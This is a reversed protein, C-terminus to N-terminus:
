LLDAVAEVGSFESGSRPPRGSDPRTITVLKEIGYNRASQLVTESDDVFMTTEVGFAIDEQLAQWFDQSEKAHGYTHSSHLGDFYDGLGTVADKLALTEPHANTVLLVRVNRAHMERLFDRAGPLFGIRHSMDHHMQVVDIGLRDCWHDLCYWELSGQVSRYRTILDELADDFSLENVIAYQRPVHEKWMYNDFALDLLTGDMDLM